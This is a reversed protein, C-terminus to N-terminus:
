KVSTMMVSAFLILLFIIMPIVVRLQRRQRGKINKAGCKVCIKAKDSIDQGCERCKMMAM